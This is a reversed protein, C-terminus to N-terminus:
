QNSIPRGAGEPDPKEAVVYAAAMRRVATGAAMARELEAVFRGQEARTLASDIAERTTPANPNPASDLLAALGPAQMVSGPEIDIRCEVHVRGFGAAAAHEALDRDDFGMMARRFDSGEPLAVLATKVKAALDAVAGVDYGYFRDEPEPYMLRNIPEFLSIRGAPRLVRHMTEFAARKDLVYILVSRTTVVDV